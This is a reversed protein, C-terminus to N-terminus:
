ENVFQSLYEWREMKEELQSESLTVEKQIDQLKLADSAHNFMDSQLKEILTELQEIDDEITEWEKQEMYTLKQKEVKIKDSDTNEKKVKKDSLLVEKSLELSDLYSSMTGFYTEIIGEGKFVLLKDMTKDLFYRDHSVTIVAGQFQNLYDELITLTEIDLDNTPEDLLLVNPQQILIKLLYLRRKEGGSLKEIVTGHTERPFLFRELMETTSISTGDKQEVQEAQEQLYQIMRKSEDLGENEQTYYGIRVTEGLDITGSDLQFKGTILNLLTSKGAGNEGTIGLRENSQILLNFDKLITKDAIDFNAEKIELVKKGLRKTNISIDLNDTNDSTSVSEKLDNFRSIRAQQKTGRAKVGARMWALEQKFLQKQKHSQRAEEEEREARMMLYAEYNGQYEHLNGKSLEMIRNTVRDLFYRDHTTVVLSGKYDKLYNELWRISKYDLHNTPEDLLLLDPAQILVQALGLRKKQGGSLEKVKKDLFLIGLKSLITKANTDALWADEQNMLEEAQQYKKQFTEDAGDISLNALALEYERVAKIIPTNGQFVTDLVTLNEDFNITQSLYGIQYDHPFDLEGKEASDIGALINMLTSKGTGNIGILGIRDGERILFSVDNLLDKIGYSKKLNDARLMKM